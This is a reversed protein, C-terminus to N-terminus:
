LKSFVFNLSLMFVAMCVISVPCYCGDNGRRTKVQLTEVSAVVQKNHQASSADENIETEELYDTITKEQKKAAATEKHQSQSFHISYSNRDSFYSLCVNCYFTKGADNKSGRSKAPKKLINKRCAPGPGHGPKWKGAVPLRRKPAEGPKWKGGTHGQPPHVSPQGESEDSLWFNEDQSREGENDSVGSFDEDSTFELNNLINTIPLLSEAHADDELISLRQVAKLKPKPATEENASKLELSQFFDPCHKPSLLADTGLDPDNFDDTNDIFESMPSTDGSYTDAEQDNQDSQKHLDTHINKSHTSSGDVRTASALAGRIDNTTIKQEVIHSEQPIAHTKYHEVYNLLGTITQNCILCMHNSSDMFDM